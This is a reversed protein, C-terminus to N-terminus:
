LHGITIENNIQNHLANITNRKLSTARQLDYAIHMIIRQAPINDAILRILKRCQLAHTISM